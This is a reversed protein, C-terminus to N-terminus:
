DVVDSMFSLPPNLVERFIRHSDVVDSMFNLPLNRPPQKHEGQFMLPMWRLAMFKPAPPFAGPLIARYM